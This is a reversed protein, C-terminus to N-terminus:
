KRSGLEWMERCGRLAALLYDIQYPSHGASVAIRLRSTGEPVTPPRIAPVWLRAERLAESLRVAAEAEGVVLPVIPTADPPLPLGLEALGRRLHAVRDRLRAVRSPDAELLEIAARAAAAAAPPLATSYILPRARNVLLEIAARPGAVFAGYSGLAKGLTGMTIARGPDLRFHSLSGRGGEGIVGTAHADDVVVTAGYRDALDCIADLPAIDGDMSFVGDTVVVTAGAHPRRLLSELADLDRHPYVRFTARSLRGGDVISAHNLRDCLIRDGPGALTTLLALNALFGSGLVVAAECGKFRAVAAELEAHPEMHGCVLPSACASTGYRQLAEAAAHILAPHSALDLYNNSCFQLLREGEVEIQPGHRSTVVRRRRRLGAAALAELEEQWREPEM